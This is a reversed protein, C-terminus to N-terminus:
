LLHEVSRYSPNELCEIKKGAKKPILILLQRALPGGIAEGYVQHILNLGSSGVFLM